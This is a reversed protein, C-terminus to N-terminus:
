GNYYGDIHLTIQRKVLESLKNVLGLAHLAEAAKQKFQGLTEDDKMREIDLGIHQCYEDGWVDIRVNLERALQALGEAASWEFAKEIKDWDEENIRSPMGNKKLLSLIEESNEFALGVVCYSTSSSNTVFGTRIKM